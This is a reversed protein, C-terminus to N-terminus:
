PCGAVCEGDVRKALREALRAIDESIETGDGTEVSAIAAFLPDNFSDHILNYMMRRGERRESVLGAAVLIGFGKSIAYQPKDLADIIECACVESGAEILARLIRFRTSEGVAKFALIANKM